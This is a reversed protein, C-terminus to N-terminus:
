PLLNLPKVKCIRSFAQESKYRLRQVFQNMQEAAECIQLFEDKAWAYSFM